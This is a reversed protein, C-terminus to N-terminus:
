GGAERTSFGQRAATPVNRFPAYATENYFQFVSLFSRGTSIWPASCNM